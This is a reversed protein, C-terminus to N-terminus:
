NKRQNMFKKKKEKENLIHIKNEEMKIVYSCQFDAPFYVPKGNQYEFLIRGPTWSTISKMESLLKKQFNSVTDEIIKGKFSKALRYNFDEGHCNVNFTVYLYDADYNNLLDPDITNNLKIELEAISIGSQPPFDSNVWIFKENTDCPTQAFGIFGPWIFIMLIIVQKM